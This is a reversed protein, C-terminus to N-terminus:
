VVVSIVKGMELRLAPSDREMVQRAHHQYRHLCRIMEHAVPGGEKRFLLAWTESLCEFGNPALNVM